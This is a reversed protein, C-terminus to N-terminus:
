KKRQAFLWAYFEPNQYTRTWSDHKVGPYETYKPKGGAAKLAAVMERSKPTPVTTDAGGHFVWLPMKAIVPAKSPDGGGCIPAAAAFLGPHRWIADWTGYGGMSIGTIYIRQPDINYDKRVQEIIELALRLSKEPEPSAITHAENWAKVSTWKEDEPVQPVIFFAPYKKMVADSAFEPLANKCTITNDSGREGAGHLFLVLPYAKGSDYRLPTLLRYPLTEGAANKYVLPKFRMAATASTGKIKSAMAAATANGAGGLLLCSFFIALLVFPSSRM